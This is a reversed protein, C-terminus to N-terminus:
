TELLAFESFGDRLNEPPSCISRRDFGPMAHVATVTLKNQTLTGTKHACLVDISAAEDV